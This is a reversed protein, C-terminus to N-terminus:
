YNIYIVRRSGSKIEENSGSLLPGRRPQRASIRVRAQRVARAVTKAVGCRFSGRRVRFSGRRVRIQSVGCGLKAAWIHLVLKAVSRAENSMQM